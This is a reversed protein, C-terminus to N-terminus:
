KETSKKRTSATKRPKKRTKKETYLMLIKNHITIFISSLSIIKEQQVCGISATTYATADITKGLENWQISIKSEKRRTESDAVFWLFLGIMMM